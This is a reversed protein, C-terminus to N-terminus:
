NRGIELIMNFNPVEVLGISGENLNKSLANLVKNPEPWHEMFSLCMFGDFSKNELNLNNDGLFGQAVSLNNNNCYEVSQKSYEIGYADAGANSLIELYEGKGCGVELVKKNTLNFEKVWSKFQKSRFKRMEESFASARIVEKYYPVPDNDLQILGCSMCQIIFLDSGADSKLGEATLFGQASSPMNSYSLLNNKYCISGCVRCNIVM